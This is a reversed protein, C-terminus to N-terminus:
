GWLGVVEVVRFGLGRRKKPKPICIQWGSGEGSMEENVTWSRACTGASGSTPM